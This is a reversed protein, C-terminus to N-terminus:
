AALAEVIANDIEDKTVDCAKYSDIFKQLEALTLEPEDAEIWKKITELKTPPTEKYVDKRWEAYTAYSNPSLNEDRSKKFCSIVQRVANVAKKEQEDANKGTGKPFARVIDTKMELAAEANHLNVGSDQLQIAFAYRADNCKDQAKIQKGLMNGIAVMESTFNNM